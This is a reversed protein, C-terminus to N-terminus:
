TVSGVGQKQLKKLKIPTKKRKKRNTKSVGFDRM